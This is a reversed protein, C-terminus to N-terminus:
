VHRKRPKSMEYDEDDEDDDSNFDLNVICADDREKKILDSWNM